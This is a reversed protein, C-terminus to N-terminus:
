LRVKKRLLKTLVREVEDGKYASIKRKCESKNKYYDDKIIDDSIKIYEDSDVRSNLLSEKIM